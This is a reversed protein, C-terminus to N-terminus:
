FLLVVRVSVDLPMFTRGLVEQYVEYGSDEDTYTVVSALPRVDTVHTVVGKVRVLKGIHQASVARLRTVPHERTLAKGNPGTAPAGTADLVPQRVEPHLVVDYRRKLAPPLANM